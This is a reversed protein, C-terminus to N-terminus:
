LCYGTPDGSGAMEIKQEPEVWLEIQEGGEVTIRPRVTKHDVHVKGEMIWNKLSSRSYDSFIEALTRDLRWGAFNEPIIATLYIPDTM